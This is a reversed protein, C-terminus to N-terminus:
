NTENERIKKAIEYYKMRYKLLILEREKNYYDYQKKKFCGKCRAHRLNREKDVFYFETEEKEEKCLSCTKM